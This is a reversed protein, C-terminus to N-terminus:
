EAFASLPADLPRLRHAHVNAFDAGVLEVHEGIDFPPGTFAAPERRAARVIEALELLRIARIRMEYERFDVDGFIHRIHGGLALRQLGLYSSQLRFVIVDSWAYRVDAPPPIM